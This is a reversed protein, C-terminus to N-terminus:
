DQVDEIGLFLNDENEKEVRIAAEEDPNVSRIGEVFFRYYDFSELLPYCTENRETNVYEEVVGMEKLMKFLSMAWEDKTVGSLIVKCDEQAKLSMDFSSIAWNKTLIRGVDLGEDMTYLLDLVIAYRKYLDALENESMTSEVFPKKFFFFGDGRALEFGTAMKWLRAYEKPATSLSEYWKRQEESRSSACIFKGGNLHRFMQPAYRLSNEM